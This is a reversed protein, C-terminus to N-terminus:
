ARIVISGPMMTDGGVLATEGGIGMGIGDYVADDAIGNGNGEPMTNSFVRTSSSWHMM